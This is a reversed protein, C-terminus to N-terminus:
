PRFFLLLHFRSAVWALCVALSNLEFRPPSPMSAYSPSRGHVSARRVDRERERERERERDRRRFGDGGNSNAAANTGAGTHTPGTPGTPGTPRRRHRKEIQDDQAAQRRERMLKLRQENACDVARLREYDLVGYELAVPRM